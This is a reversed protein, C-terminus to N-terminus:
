LAHTHRMSLVFRESFAQNDITFGEFELKATKIPGRTGGIAYNVTGTKGTDKANPVDGTVTM